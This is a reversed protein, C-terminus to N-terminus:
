PRGNLAPLENIKALVIFESGEGKHPPAPTPCLPVPFGEVVRYGRTSGHRVFARNIPMVISHLEQRRSNM